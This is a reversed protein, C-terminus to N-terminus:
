RYKDLLSIALKFLSSLSQCCHQTPVLGCYPNNSFWTGLQVLIRDEECSDYIERTWTRRRRREPPTRPPPPFLFLRLLLFFPQTTFTECKEFTNPNNQVKEIKLHVRLIGRNKLRKPSFHFSLSFISCKQVLIKQDCM